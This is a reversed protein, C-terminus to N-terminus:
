LRASVRAHHALGAVSLTAMKQTRYAHLRFASHRGARRLREHLDTDDYSLDGTYTDAGVGVAEDHALRSSLRGM